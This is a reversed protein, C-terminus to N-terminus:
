PGSPFGRPTADPVQIVVALFEGHHALHPRLLAPRQGAKPAAPPRPPPCFAPRLRRGVEFGPRRIGATVFTPKRLTAFERKKVYDGTGHRHKMTPIMGMFRVRRFSRRPRASSGSAASAPSGESSLPRQRISVARLVASSPQVVASRTM